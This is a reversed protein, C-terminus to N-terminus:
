FRVGHEEFYKKAGPHYPLPSGIKQYRIDINQAEPHLRVLEPKKEMLTKVIDYAMQDTMRDSTVLINWVDINTVPRDMGSYASQPIVGKAYLPGHKANLADLADAHDLLRVKVGPTSALDAIAATPVGGVWFFVDIRREKLAAVSERLGLQEQVIDTAPVMGMADLVRLAMVEVGSGSAGTSVRKGKLDSLRRIGTGERTVIQMRNPYLVMLTKANVQRYKFQDIGNVAQWAADVMSFGVEAKGAGVLKLNEVSGQSAQAAVQLGPMYKSLLRAMGDGLPNYVGGAGGTAISLRHESQAHAPWAVVCAAASVCAIVTRLFWAGALRCGTTM